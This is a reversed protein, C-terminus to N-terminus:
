VHARGIQTVYNHPRASQAQVRASRRLASDLLWFSLEAIARVKAAGAGTISCMTRTGSPVQLDFSEAARGLGTTSYQARTGTSVQVAGVETFSTTAHVGAISYTVDAGMAGLVVGAFNSM